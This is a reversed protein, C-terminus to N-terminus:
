AGVPRTGLAGAPLVPACDLPATLDALATSTM